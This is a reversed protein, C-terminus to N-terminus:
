LKFQPKLPFDFDVKNAVTDMQLILAVAVSDQDIMKMKSSDIQVLPTTAAIHFAENFSLSGRQNPTLVLSDLGVKRSKVSFTDITKEKINTVRLCLLILRLLLLGFTLM